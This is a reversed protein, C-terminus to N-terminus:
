ASLEIVEADAIDQYRSPQCTLVIVQGRDGVTSFVAGMATLRQPDSFGLADDIVVPVTDEPAVLAAGALRALIGLQERAGGSLSDYPVTCGELTRSIISLDSDIDVEFTAGFVIRGLRELEARYPLVYRQRTDDRHRAMTDRLLRAADARRSIRDHEAQAHELETDAEDLRGQRGETGIIELQAVLADLERKLAALQDTIAARAQTADALEAAVQTPNAAEYQESLATFADEARRRAEAATAAADAVADDSVASRSEALQNQVAVSEAEAITLRDGLLTAATTKEALVSKAAGLTSRCTEADAQAQDLAATASALEAAAVGAEVPPGSSAARLEALRERLRDADEGLCLGDLAAALEVRTSALARRQEAVRRASALGAVGARALAEDSARKADQLQARLEAASAGPDIRVTLVGPVAVAVPESPPATWSQGRVLRLPEGDVTIELDADAIFEVSGADAHLQAELRAVLAAGQEVEALLEDTLTIGALQDQVRQLDIGAQEIRAVRVALRDAEDRSECAAVAAAATDRRQAAAVLRAEAASSQDEAAAAGQQAATQEAVAAALPSGLEAVAAARRDAEARLTDRQELAAAAAAGTGAAAAAVLRAQELQEALATVAAQASEAAACRTAAPALHDTLARHDAGLQEYRAVREEVDAVADRCREVDAQAAELRTIADRYERAPRGATPTFYREFEADIRTILLSETGSPTAVAGAAADLARSLADCGSLDVARTAASQLVRQAEWLTTDVTEALLSRVKEHAEDASFHARVPTLITLETRHKKHFRKLYVFRYPGTSIEAEVEAGVDANAPKVVRVKQANSRDKHELLLDLAELMSSKGIENPGCVVVVGSDPFTIEREGVGRFNALRLRHLIM